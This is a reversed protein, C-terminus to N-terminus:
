DAKAAQSELFREVRQKALASADHPSGYPAMERARTPPRTDEQELSELHESFALLSRQLDNLPEALEAPTTDAAAGPPLEPAALRVPMRPAPVERPTDDRPSGSSRIADRISNAAAVRATLSGLNWKDIMYKLLSTHDFETHVVTRDVWPSVLLAPVRLGFQDFTYEDDHEDPPVAAPPSVHDYFGGHEDYLIVLLTSNWLSENSRLANYVSALLQQARVASHPPHDDNQEGKMYTPEIFSFVPFKAEPGEADSYFRPMWHYHIANRPRRQHTLVLSIPVDGCYVRWSVDRENLRDFITDQDYRLFMGADWVHEPMSVWGNSTGSHAFFRNTWTPGPVSCYWRDCITFHQALTHLAPLFDLPYYGMIRQWDPATTQEYFQEYDKVFCGNADELQHLVHELEHKPDPSVVTDTSTIQWIKQEHTSENFRPNAEDVGDVEPDFQQLCGLMQDFSHNEFMLVVIHRIPDSATVGRIRNWVRRLLTM